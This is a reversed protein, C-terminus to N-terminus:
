HDAMVYAGAISEKAVFNGPVYEELVDTKKYISPEKLNLRGLFEPTAFSGAAYQAGALYNPDSYDRNPVVGLTAFEPKNLPEYEFFNNAREKDKGRYRLGFQLIGKDSYPLKFDMKANLDQDFTYSYQEQLATFGLGQVDAARSLIALPKEPNSLDVTVDRNSSRYSIYRENPREESAKAYTVSWDMKLKNFLHSGGLTTNYVRQDELRAAKVRDNDIGGKTQVEVRGKTAFVGPSTETFKGDDFADDLRSVRMRFRNEWDDRHNYMGSLFLTHNANIEYDLALSVSRRIRQVRYERIDFEELVVGNDSNYWVAEVNDSGFNHNNYSGSLIFGLKDNALRNGIVLGGTWIPKNSLLNVGSAATGSVRLANPAQRTVLNVSGGIADADM